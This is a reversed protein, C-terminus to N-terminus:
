ACPRSSAFRWAAGGPPSPRPETGLLCGHTGTWASRRPSPTTGFLMPGRDWGHPTAASTRKSLFAHIGERYLAEVKEERRRLRASRWNLVMHKTERAGVLLTVILAGLAMSVLVLSVPSLDFATTPGTRFSVSGPNLEQFYGYLLIAVSLLFVTLLLRLM